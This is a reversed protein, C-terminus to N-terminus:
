CSGSWYMTWGPYYGWVSPDWSYQNGYYCYTLQGSEDYYGSFDMGWGYWTDQWWQLESSGYDCSGSWYMTWGPYYGWVSPNWSYQNGYYCYQLVGYANYYGSFDMGWSYWTDQWWQLDSSVDGCSGSWYMTWGPYYGWISPNWTYQNGYYCYQLVGSDNYYGSFSMGWSYWSDQWWEGTWSSTFYYYYDITYYFSSDGCSGSWYMTWGPYYGWVAPNWTYQNGYYCYQLVGSENYYGSFSMGWGYWTDMWWELDSSVDGCSGSWYMTWGPYYGWVAPNWTYQNGSNCYQLVGYANYYGSFTM